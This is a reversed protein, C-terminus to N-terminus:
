KRQPTLVFFSAKLPPLLVVEPIATTVEPPASILFPHVGDRDGQQEAEAMWYRGEDDRLRLAVRGIPEDKYTLYIVPSRTYHGDFREVRHRRYNSQATWGSPSGGSVSGMGPNTTSFQGNTFVYVGPPFYGLAVVRQARFQNTVNWFNTAPAALNIRPLTAAVITAAMNTPSPHWVVDFRLEAQNVNPTVGRNGLADEAEWEPAGWGTVPSGDRLLRWRPNWFRVSSEWPQGNGDTSLVLEALEIEFGNTKFRQPLPRGGMAVPKFLHPNTIQVEVSQNTKWPTLRLTLTPEDRPYCEFIEAVRSYGNGFGYWSSNGKGWLEGHQDVIEVRVKQCDADKGTATDTADMWLFLAPPSLSLESQGKRPMFFELVSLPAWSFYQGFYDRQGIWSETGFGVGRIHMTRGDALTVDIVRAAM